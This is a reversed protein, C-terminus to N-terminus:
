VEVFLKVGVTLSFTLLDRKKKGKKRNNNKRERSRECKADVTENEKRTIERTGADQNEFLFCFCTM